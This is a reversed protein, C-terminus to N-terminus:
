LPACPIHSSFPPKSLDVIHSNRYRIPDTPRAEQMEMDGLSIWNQWKAREVWEFPSPKPKNCKGVTGQKYYKYLVMKDPSDLNFTRVYETAFRFEPGWEEEGDGGRLTLTPIAVAGRRGALRIMALRVACRQSYRQASCGRGLHGQPFPSRALCLASSLMLM